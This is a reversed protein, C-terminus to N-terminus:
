VNKHISKVLNIRKQAILTQEPSIDVSIADRDLEYAVGAVTGSGGFPDLVIWGPRTYMEILREPIGRVVTYHVINPYNLGMAKDVLDNENTSELEWIPDKYKKIKFPNSYFNAPDKVLHFWMLWDQYIYEDKNSRGHANSIKHIISEIYSLNTKKLVEAIYKHMLGDEPSIEIWISGTPKLVRQMEKTSKLLLKLMKKSDFNIQKRPDGGYFSPDRNIFPPAAIILDISNNPIFKLNTADGTVLNINSM